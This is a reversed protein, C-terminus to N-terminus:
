GCLLKDVKDVMKDIEADVGVGDGNKLENDEGMEVAAPNTVAWSLKM